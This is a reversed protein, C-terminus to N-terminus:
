DQESTVNDKILMGNLRAQGATFGADTIANKIANIDASKGEQMETGYVCFPCTMGSVEIEIIQQDQAIVIFSYLSVMLFLLLSRFM